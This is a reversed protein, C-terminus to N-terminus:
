VILTYNGCFSSLEVYSSWRCRDLCGWLVIYQFVKPVCWGLNRIQIEHPCSWKILFDKVTGKMLRMNGSIDIGGFKVIQNAM